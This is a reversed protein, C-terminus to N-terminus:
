TPSGPAGGGHRLRWNLAHAGILTLGGALSVLREAAEPRVVLTLALLVLGVLGLTLPGSRGHRRRGALLAAMALPAALLLLLLHVFPSSVMGLSPLLAGVLPLGVCHVLCLGSLGGATLELRDLRGAAGIVRVGGRWTARDDPTTPARLRVTTLSCRKM